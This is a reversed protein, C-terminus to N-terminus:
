RNEAEKTVVKSSFLLMAKMKEKKRTPKSM